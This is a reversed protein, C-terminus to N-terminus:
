FVGVPDEASPYSEGGCLFLSTRTMVSFQIQIQHPPELEPARHLTLLRKMVNVGLDM